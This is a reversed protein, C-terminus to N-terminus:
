QLCRPSGNPLVRYGLPSSAAQIPSTPPRKREHREHPTVFRIGSHRHESNYWDVFGAVWSRACTIDTFPRSAYSPAYKLTRFLAESYPNDDSVRPRSFSPTVHLSQLTALMTAAKMPGGNDAHLVLTDRAVQERMCAKGILVSAHIGLEEHHVEWGVIKRSYVDLIMYLKFFQGKVTSPLYTM